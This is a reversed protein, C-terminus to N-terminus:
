AAGDDISGLVLSMADRMGFTPWFAEDSFYPLGGSWRTGGPPAITITNDIIVGDVDWLVGKTLMTHAKSDSSGRAHISAGKKRPAMAEGNFPKGNSRIDPSLGGGEPSLAWGVRM